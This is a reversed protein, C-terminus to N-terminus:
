LLTKPERIRTANSIPTAGQLIELAYMYIGFSSIEPWATPTDLEPNDEGETHRKVPGDLARLDHMLMVYGSRLRKNEQELKVITAPVDILTDDDKQKVYNNM